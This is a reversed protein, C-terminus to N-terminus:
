TNDAKYGGVFWRDLLRSAENAAAPAEVYWYQFV